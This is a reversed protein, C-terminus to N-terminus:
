VKLAAILANLKTRLETTLTILTATDTAVPAAVAVVANIATRQAASLRGDVYLKNAAHYNGTPTGAGVVGNTGTAYFSDAAPATAGNGTFQLAPLNANLQFIPIGQESMTVFSLIKDGSDLPGYIAGFTVPVPSGGITLNTSSLNSLIEAPLETKDVKAADLTDYVMTTETRSSAFINDRAQSQEPGGLSQPSDFRVAGADVGGGGGELTVRLSGDNAYLGFEGDEALSASISGDTEYKM